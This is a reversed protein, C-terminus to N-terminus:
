NCEAESVSAAIWAVSPSKAYFSLWYPKNVIVMLRKKGQVSLFIKRGPGSKVLRLTPAPDIHARALAEIAVHMSDDFAWSRAGEDAAKQESIVASQSDFGALNRFASPDCGLSGYEDTSSRRDLDERVHQDFSEVRQIAFLSCCGLHGYGAWFIADGSGQKEGSFFTGVLTARVTIDPESNLLRRFGQFTKNNALPIKTGDITLGEKRSSHTGEGPCCYITGSEAKGGYMLWLSFHTDTPQCSPDYIGFDEFGHTVFATIRILEHNYAAPDNALDCYIVTRPEV